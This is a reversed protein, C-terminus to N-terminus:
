QLFAGEAVAPPCRRVAVGYACYFRLAAIPAASSLPQRCKPCLGAALLFYRLTVEDGHAHARLDDGAARYPGDYGCLECTVTHSLTMGIYM